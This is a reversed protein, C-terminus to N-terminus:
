GFLGKLHGIALEQDIFFPSTAITIFSAEKAFKRIVEYKLDLPVDDLDPSFIDLDLNLISNKGVIRDKARLLDGEGEIRIM